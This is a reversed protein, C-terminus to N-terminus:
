GFHDFRDAGDDLGADPSTDDRPHLRTGGRQSSEPFLAAHKEEAAVILGPHEDLAGGLQGLLQHGSAIGGRERRRNRSVSVAPASVANLARAAGSRPRTLIVSM